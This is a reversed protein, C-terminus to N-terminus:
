ISRLFFDTSSRNLRMVMLYTIRLDRDPNTLGNKGMAKAGAKM